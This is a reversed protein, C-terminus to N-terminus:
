EDAGEGEPDDGDEDEALDASPADDRRVVTFDDVEEDIHELLRDVSPEIRELVPQPYVGMGVIV